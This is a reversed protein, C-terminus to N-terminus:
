AKDRIIGVFIPPFNPKNYFDHVLVTYKKPDIKKLYAMIAEKEEFGTDGGHYICLGIVGQVKILQLAKEIALISDEKHTCIKHDGGPLYGFNFM